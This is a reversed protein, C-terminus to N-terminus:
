IGDFSGLALYAGNAILCFGAFFQFVYWGRVRCIRAIGLFLLPLISGVLPGIWAVFLPRPNLALQTYSITTPYLVVARVQGSTLKAASYHGFEHVAQMALWSLELTAAILMLSHQRIM